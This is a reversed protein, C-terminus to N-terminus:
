NRKRWTRTRTTAELYMAQGARKQKEALEPAAALLLILILLLSKKM